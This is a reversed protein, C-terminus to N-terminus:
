TNRTYKMSVWGQHGKYYVRCWGNYKYSPSLRTGNPIKAVIGFSESPGSRLNLNAGNTSVVVGHRIEANYDIFTECKKCYELSVWGTCPECIFLWGNQKKLHASCVVTGGPIASGVKKYNTGPGSRVNLGATTTVVYYHNSFSAAAEATTLSSVPIIPNFPVVALIIAMAMIMTARVIKKM